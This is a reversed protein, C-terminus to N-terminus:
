ELWGRDGTLNVFIQELTPPADEEKSINSFRQRLSHLTDDAVIRGKNMVIVRDAVQEVDSLIHTSFFVTSNRGKILRTMADLFNRRVLPDIGSTPEDLILLEPKHSLAIALALKALEGRSLAKVKNDMPLQLIANITEFENWDWRPYIGGTFELVQRATMWDYINHKEPVYGIRSNIEFSERVPDLGLVRVDGSDARLLDLLIRITTTKGAGNPGVLGCICGKPVNFSINDVATIKKFKKNLNKVIIAPEDM